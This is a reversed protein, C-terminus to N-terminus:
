VFTFLMLVGGTGASSWWIISSLIVVLQDQERGSAGAEITQKCGM